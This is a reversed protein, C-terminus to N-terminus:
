SERKIATQGPKNEKRMMAMQQVISLLNSLTWYLILGSPCSSFMVLFFVPMLFMMVKQNKDMPQPTLIQQLLMTACMLLPLAGIQLMAPPNWPILGFLNFVTTPDPASLDHIWLALPAHRMELGISFVKYLCFFIPIQIFMPWMSSAPNIQEKKYLKLLEENLRMKDDGYRRKLQELKPQFAKMKNMSRFSSRALPYTLAKSLITMVVLAWAISHLLTGLWKLLYYLPKTLFYLWGFDVSLDLKKIGQDAYQDLVDLSKAGTFLSHKVELTEGAKLTTSSEQVRCLFKDQLSRITATADQNNINVWASLWYKDTFGLWGNSFNKSLSKSKNLKAFTLETLHDDCYAIGGEHVTSVRETLASQARWLECIPSFALDQGSLNMIKDSFTLLYGEDMSITREFVVGISNSWVLTIPTSPTLAKPSSGALSWTTAATPCPCAGGDSTWVVQAYFAEATQQPNMWRVPPSQHDTTEKYQTLSVDDIKAGTLNISGALCGNQFPVRSTQKLADTRKLLPGQAAPAVMETTTTKVNANKNSNRDTIYNFGFLIGFCLAFALLSNQTESTM